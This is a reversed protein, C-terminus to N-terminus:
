RKKLKLKVRIDEICTYPYQGEEDKEYKKVMDWITILAIATAVLSEIEVGTKAKAKVEVKVEIGDKMPNVEIKVSTLPIQHCLPILESTKKAALIGALKAAAIVNGKEVEGRVIRDVTEKRLKIKGIAIAIREIVGKESIDVMRIEKSM